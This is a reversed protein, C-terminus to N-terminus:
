GHWRGLAEGYMRAAGAVTPECTTGPPLWTSRPEALAAAVASRLGAGDDRYLLLADPNRERIESTYRTIPALPRRGASLWANLSGSASVHRHHAVPVTVSRLMTTLAHDPVHGTVAFRRGGRRATASLEEVLDDHGASPEGVALMWVTRPLGTMAALVELHGKGPYLYGFVGVSRPEAFRPAARTVAAPIPLPIVALRDPASGIESLLLREHESSVVVADVAACISRYARAREDFHEGDSPQPLDHLTVTLRAGRDHLRDALRTITVAAETAPRGYLHDTFQVHVGRCGDLDQSRRLQTPVGVAALAADLELGFRVVGHRDPGVVLHALPATM